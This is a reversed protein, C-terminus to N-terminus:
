NNLASSSVKRSFTSQVGMTSRSKHLPINVGKKSARPAAGAVPTGPKVAKGYVLKALTGKQEKMQGHEKRLRINEKELLLNDKNVLECEKKMELNSLELHAVKDQLEQEINSDIMVQRDLRKESIETVM